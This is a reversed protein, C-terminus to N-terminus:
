PSSGLESNDEWLGDAMCVSLPFWSGMLQADVAVFGHLPTQPLAGVYCEFHRSPMGRNRELM